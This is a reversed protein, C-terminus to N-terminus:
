CSGCPGTYARAVKGQQRRFALSSSQKGPTPPGSLPLRREKQGDAPQAEGLLSGRGRGAQHLEWEDTLARSFCGDEAKFFRGQPGLCPETEQKVCLM